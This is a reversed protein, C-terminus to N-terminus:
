HLVANPTLLETVWQEDVFLNDAPDLSFFPENQQLLEKYHEKQVPVLEPMADPSPMVAFCLPDGEIVSIMGAERHRLRRYAERLENKMLEIVRDDLDHELLTVKEALEPPQHVARLRINMDRPLLGGSTLFDVLGLVHDAEDEDTMIFMGRRQPDHYLMPYGVRSSQHCQKCKLDFISGDLVRSKLEPNEQVNVIEYFSFDQSAGCHPCPIDRQVIRSM